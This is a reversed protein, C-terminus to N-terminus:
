SKLAKGLADMKTYIDLIQQVIEPMSNKFARIDEYAQSSEEYKAFDECAKKFEEISFLVEERTSM